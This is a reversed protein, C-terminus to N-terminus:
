EIDTPADEIAFSISVPSMRKEKDFGIDQIENIPPFIRADMVPIKMKCSTYKSPKSALKRKKPTLSLKSRNKYRTILLKKSNM